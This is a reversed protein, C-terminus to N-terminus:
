SPVRYIEIIVKGNYIVRGVRFAYNVKNLEIKGVSVVADGELLVTTDEPSFRPLQFNLSLSFPTLFLLFIILHGHASASCFTAM